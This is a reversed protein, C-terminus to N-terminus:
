PVPSGVILEDNAPLFNTEHAIISSFQGPTGDKTGDSTFNGKNKGGFSLTVTGSTAGPALTQSASLPIVM